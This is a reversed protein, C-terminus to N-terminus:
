IGGGDPTGCREGVALFADCPEILSSFKPTEPVGRHNGSFGLPRLSIQRSIPQPGPATHKSVTFVWGFAVVLLAAALVLGAMRWPIRTSAPDQTGQRASPDAPSRSSSESIKMALQNFARNVGVADVVQNGDAVNTNQLKRLALVDDGCLSCTELHASVRAKEEDSCQGSAFRVIAAEAPHDKDADTEHLDMAALIENLSDPM